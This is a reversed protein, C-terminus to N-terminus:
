RIQKQPLVKGIIFKILMPLPLPHGNEKKLIRPFCLERVKQFLSRRVISRGDKDIMNGNTKIEWDKYGDLKFPFVAVGKELASVM